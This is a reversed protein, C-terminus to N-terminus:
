FEKEGDRFSDIPTGSSSIVNLCNSKLFHLTLKMHIQNTMIYM